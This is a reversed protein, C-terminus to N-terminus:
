VRQGSNPSAARHELAASVAQNRSRRRLWAGVGIVVFGVGLAIDALNGIFWTGYALFDTVYGRGFAPPAFVRDILNGIAGGLLFGIGIAQSRTRTRLAAVFLLVTIGAGLLTLLGTVGSGLSLLAGPNFALTLGLFDGLLPIRQETSLWTMAAVKTAQDIVAVLGTVVCVIFFRRAQGHTM